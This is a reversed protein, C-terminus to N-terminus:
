HMRRVKWVAECPFNHTFDTKERRWSVSTSSTEVMGAVEASMAQVGNPLAQLFAAAKVTDYPNTCSFIGKDCEKVRIVFNPDKTGLEEAIKIGTADTIEAFSASHEENVVLVAKTERPIANDALGGNVSVIGVPMEKTLNWLLRGFLCNSNGREKHIEGGSHGGVLGSLSVEYAIGEM